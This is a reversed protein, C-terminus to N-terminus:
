VLSTHKESLTIIIHCNACLIDCKSIEELIREKSYGDRVM